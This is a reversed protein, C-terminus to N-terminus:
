KDGDKGMKEGEGAEEDRVPPRATRVMGIRGSPTGMGSGSFTSEGMGPTRWGSRGGGYAEPSVSAYVHHEITPDYDFSHHQNPHDNHDNQSSSTFDFNIPNHDIDPNSRSVLNNDTVTSASAQPPEPPAIVTFTTGENTQLIIEKGDENEEDDDGREEGDDNGDGGGEGDEDEDRGWSGRRRSAGGMGRWGRGNLRVEELARVLDM